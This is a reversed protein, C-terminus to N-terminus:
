TPSNLNLRDITKFVTDLMVRTEDLLRKQEKKVSQEQQIIKKIKNVEIANIEALDTLKDNFNRFVANLLPDLYDNVILVKYQDLYLFISKIADKKLREGARKLTVTGATKTDRKFCKGFLGALFFLGFRAVSDLKMAANFKIPFVARPLVLGLIDRIHRITVPATPLSRNDTESDSEEPVAPDTKNPFSGRDGTLIISNVDLRNALYFNSFHEQIDTEQEKVFGVVVPNFDQVMFKELEQRFDQFMYYLTNNLGTQSLETEYREYDMDLQRFFRKILKIAKGNQKHFFTDVSRNLENKFTKFAADMASELILEQQKSRVAMAKLRELAEGEQEPNESLITTFFDIRQLAGKAMARIRELHNSLLLLDREHDLLTGLRANFNATMGDSYDTYDSDTNWLELRNKDKQSKSLDMKGFLNYLSSITYIEPDPLLYGLEKRVKNEVTLLDDLCDHETFDTNVVFLLNKLLGMEKITKLLNIDSQRLGTRSSIIYIIMNSLVLYDHIQALQSSDTADCGQCDAIEVLPALCKSNAELTVERVFFAIAPNGTYHQHRKFADGSFEIFVPDAKVVDQVADYGELANSIVVAEPRIGRETLTIDDRISKGAARLLDRDNKRRLDFGNKNLNSADIDPYFLLAKEIDENIDDWSKLHIVAKFQDGKKLKTVIATVVGAGRKLLDDELLSNVFTSKGSKISGVVAVRILGSRIQDPIKKCLQNKQDTAPDSMGTIGQMRDFVHTLDTSLTEITDLLTENETM